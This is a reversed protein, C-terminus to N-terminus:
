WVYTNSSFLYKGEKISEPMPSYGHNLWGHALIKVKNNFNFHSNQLSSSDNIHLVDPDFPNRRFDSFGSVKFFSSMDDTQKKIDVGQKSPFTISRTIVDIANLEIKRYKVYM